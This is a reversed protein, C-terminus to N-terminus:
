AEPRAVIGLLEKWSKGVKRKAIEEATVAACFGRVYTPRGDDFATITNAIKLIDAPPLGYKWRPDEAL